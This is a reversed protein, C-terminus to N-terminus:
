ICISGFIGKSKQDFEVCLIELCEAIKCQNSTSTKIDVFAVYLRQYETVPSDEGSSTTIPCQLHGDVGDATTTWAHNAACGASTEDVASSCDLNVYHSLCRRAPSRSWCFNATRVYDCVRVVGNYFIPLGDDTIALQYTRTIVHSIPQAWSYGSDTYIARVFVSM